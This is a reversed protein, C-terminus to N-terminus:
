FKCLSYRVALIKQMNVICIKDSKRHLMEIHRGLLQYTVLPGCKLLTVFM